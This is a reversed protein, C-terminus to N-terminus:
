PTFIVKISYAGAASGYYDSVRAYYINGPTVKMSVSIDSGGTTNHNVATQSKNTDYLTLRPRLAASRNTLKVTMQRAKTDAKVKFFDQDQGDMISAEVDEGAAITSANLIIDNPEYSDYAKAPTVRFLYAGVSNGYYNSLKVAYKSQPAAVFSYSLNAGPTTLHRNGVSSKEYNFLELRPELTASRNDLEIKIWDRYKPPTTFSFFDADTGAGISATVWKNLQIKNTSLSKDNPELEQASVEIDTPTILELTELARERRVDMVKTNLEQSIQRAEQLNSKISAKATAAKTPNASAPANAKTDNAALTTTGEGLSLELSQVAAVIGDVRNEYARAKAKCQLFQEPNLQGADLVTCCTKLNLATMQARETLEVLPERGIEFEGNTKLFSIKTSLGIATQQFIAECPSTRAVLYDYGLYVVLMTLMAGSVAFLPILRNMWGRDHNKAKSTPSKKEDTIM